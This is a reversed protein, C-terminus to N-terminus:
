REGSVGGDAPLEVAIVPVGPYNMAIEALPDISTHQEAPIRAVDRTEGHEAVVVTLWDTLSAEDHITDPIDIAALDPFAERLHPEVERSVRPLQHTMLDEDVLFGLIDYVGGIHRPSVLRGTMVSLVDGIHFTRTDSM